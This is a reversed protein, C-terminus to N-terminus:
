SLVFETRSGCRYARPYGFQRGVRELVEVVDAGRCTFRPEIAPSFRSFTDAITLVRPMRGAFQKHAFGDALRTQKRPPSAIRIFSQRSGGNVHQANAVWRAIHGTSGRRTSAIQAETFKSRKVTTGRGAARVVSAAVPIKWCHDTRLCLPLDHVLPIRLFSHAPVACRRVTRRWDAM